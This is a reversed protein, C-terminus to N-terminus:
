LCNSKLNLLMCGSREILPGGIKLLWRKLTRQFLLYHSHVQILGIVCLVALVRHLKPQESHLLTLLDGRMPWGPHGRSVLTVINIPNLTLVSIVEFNDYVLMWRFRKIPFTKSMWIVATLSLNRNFNISLLAFFSFPQIPWCQLDLQSM